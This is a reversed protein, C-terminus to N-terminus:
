RTRSQPSEEHPLETGEWNMNPNQFMQEWAGDSMPAIGTSADITGFDWDSGMGVSFNSNSSFGNTNGSISINSALTAESSSFCQYSTRATAQSAHLQGSMPKPSARYPLHHEIPQGPSYSSQSTSGGKSQSNITSPSPQDFSRDTSIDMENVHHFNFATSDFENSGVSNAQPVNGRQGFPQSNYVTDQINMDLVVNALHFPPGANEGTTASGSVPNSNNFQNTPTNPNQTERITFIPSCGVADRNIHVTPPQPHFYACPKICSSSICQM